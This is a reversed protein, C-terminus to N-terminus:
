DSSTIWGTLGAESNSGSIFYHYELGEYAGEGIYRGTGYNYPVVGEAFPLVGVLDFVGQVSGRWVGQDNTLTADQAIWTGGTTGDAIRSVIRMDETGSVRPDSMDDECVFHEVLVRVGDAMDDSVPTMDCTGTGVVVIADDPPVSQDVTSDSSCGATAVALVFFLFGATVSRSVM